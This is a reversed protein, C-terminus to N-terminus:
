TAKELVVAVLHTHLPNYVSHAVMSLPWCPVLAQAAFADPNIAMSSWQVQSQCKGQQEQADVKDCVAVAFL